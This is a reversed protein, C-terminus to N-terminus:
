PMYSYESPRKSKNPYKFTTEVVVKSGNLVANKIKTEMGRWEASHNVCYAQPFINISEPLGGASDALIHGGEDNYQKPTNPTTDEDKCM